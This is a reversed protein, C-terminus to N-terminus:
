GSVPDVLGLEVWYTQTGLLSCSTGNKIVKTHWLWFQVKGPASLEISQAVPAPREFTYWCGKLFTLSIVSQRFSGKTRYMAQFCFLPPEASVAFIHLSSDTLVTSTCSAWTEATIPVCLATYVNTHTTFNGGLKHYNNMETKCVTYVLRTMLFGTKAM